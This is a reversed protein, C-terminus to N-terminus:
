KLYSSINTDHNVRYRSLELSSSFEGIGSKTTTAYLYGSAKVADLVNQNYKGSPYCFSIAKKGTIQELSIKSEGVENKMKSDTSISLDPHSITHSGIEFGAASLEKIQVNSLYDASHFGTIIFIVATMGRKQLEPYANTYFNEYGDDFTLIVPKSVNKGLSLQEFTTTTYGRQAILDLQKALSGPSVSLNTGIQDNPDNFDRIHHYMLIPIKQDAIKVPDAPASSSMTQVQIPVASSSSSQESLENASVTLIDSQENQHLLYFGFFTGALVIVALAISLVIQYRKM